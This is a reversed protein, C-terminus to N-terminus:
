SDNVFCVISMKGEIRSLFVESEALTICSKTVNVLTMDRNLESISDLVQVTIKSCSHLNLSRLISCGRLLYIAGEDTIADNRNLEVTCLRPCSQSVVVLSYDTLGAVSVLSLKRLQSQSRILPVLISDGLHSAFFRLKQLQVGSAIIADVSAKNARCSLSTLCPCEKVATNIIGEFDSLTSDNVILELM